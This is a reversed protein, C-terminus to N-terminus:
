SSTRCWWSISSRWSNRAHKLDPDSVMPNEGIIVMAKLKGEHAAEMMETVTLGNKDPLKDM